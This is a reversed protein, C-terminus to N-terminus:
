IAGWCYSLVAYRIPTRLGKTQELKITDPFSCGSGVNLLRTLAWDKRTNTANCIGHKLECERLWEAARAFNIESSIDYDHCLAGNARSKETVRWLRFEARIQSILVQLFPRDIDEEWQLNTNYNPKILLRFTVPQGNTQAFSLLESQLTNFKNVVAKCLRCGGDATGLVRAASRQYDPSDQFYKDDHNSRLFDRCDECLAATM